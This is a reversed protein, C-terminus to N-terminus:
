LSWIEFERKNNKGHQLVLVYMMIMVKDRTPNKSSILLMSVDPITGARNGSSSFSAMREDTRSSAWFAPTDGDRSAMQCYKTVFHALLKCMTSAMDGTPSIRFVRHRLKGPRTFLVQISQNM